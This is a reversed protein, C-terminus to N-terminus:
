PCPISQGVLNGNNDPTYLWCSGNPSRMIVGSGIQDIYVNGNSVQLRERPNSNDIGVNGDYTIRFTEHVSHSGNYENQITFDAMNNGRAVSNLTVTCQPHNVGDWTNNSRASLILSVDGPTHTNDNIIALGDLAIANPNYTGDQAFVNFTSLEASTNLPFHVQSRAAVATRMDSQVIGTNKSMLAYPASSLVSEGMFHYNSGGNEDIEVRVIAPGNGWHIQEFDGSVVLGTGIKLTFLGFQNTTVQHTETYANVYSSGTYEKITIRVSVPRNTMPLGQYNRVIGQYNINQPVQANLGWGFLIILLFLLKRM